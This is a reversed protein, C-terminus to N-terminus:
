RRYYITLIGETYSGRENIYFYDCQLSMKNGNYTLDYDPMMTPYINVDSIDPKANPNEEVMRFELRNGNMVAVVVKSWSPHTIHALYEGLFLIQTPMNFFYVKQWFEDKSVSRKAYQEQSKMPREQAEARDFFWEGNFESGLPQQAFMSLSWATLVAFMVIVKHRKQIMEKLNLM